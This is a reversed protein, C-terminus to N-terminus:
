IEYELNLTAGKKVFKDVDDEYVVTSLRKIVVKDVVIGGRDPLSKNNYNFTAKGYQNTTLSNSETVEYSIVEDDPQAGFNKVAEQVKATIEEFINQVPSGNEKVLVEVVIKDEEVDADSSKKKCFCFVLLFISILVLSKKM